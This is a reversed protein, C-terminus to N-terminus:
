LEDSSRVQDKSSATKTLHEAMKKVVDAKMRDEILKADKWHPPRWWYNVAM